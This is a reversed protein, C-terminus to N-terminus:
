DDKMAKKLNNILREAVKRPGGAKMSGFWISRDGAQTSWLVRDGSKDLLSISGTATDHLGLYRGTVVAKTSTQHESVGAMIADALEPKLVVGIDGKFQKQIEARIYQDLDNDMKDVFVKRISSLRVPAERDQAESAFPALVGISALVCVAWTTKQKLMVIEM